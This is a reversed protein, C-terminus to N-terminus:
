TPKLGGRQKNKANQNGLYGKRKRKHRDKSGTPRGLSIGLNKKAQLREKTAESINTRELEALAVIVTLMMKGFPTTFDIGEMVSLVNIGRKQLEDIDLVCQRVSRWARDIRFVIIADLEFNRADQMLQNYVPRENRTSEIERYIKQSTLNKYKALKKCPDLQQEFTQGGTSVRVYIGVRDM